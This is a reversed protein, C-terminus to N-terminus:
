MKYSVFCFFFFPFIILYMLLNHLVFIDKLLDNKIEPLLMFFIDLNIYIICKPRTTEINLLTAGSIDVPIPCTASTPRLIPCTIFYLRFIPEIAL